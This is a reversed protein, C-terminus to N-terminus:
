PSSVGGRGARTNPPVVRGGADPPSVLIDVSKAALARREERTLEGYAAAQREAEAFEEDSLAALREAAETHADGTARLQTALSVARAWRVAAEGRKRMFVKDAAQAEARAALAERYKANKFARLEADTMTEFDPM